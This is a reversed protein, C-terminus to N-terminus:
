ECPVYVPLITERGDRCKMVEMLVVWVVDTKMMRSVAKCRSSALLPFDSMGSEDQM